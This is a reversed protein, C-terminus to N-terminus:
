ERGKERWLKNKQQRKLQFTGSKISKRKSKQKKVYNEATKKERERERKNQLRWVWNLNLIIRRFCKIHRRFSEITNLTKKRVRKRMEFFFSEWGRQDCIWMLIVFYTADEEALALLWVFRLVMLLRYRYWQRSCLQSDSIWM